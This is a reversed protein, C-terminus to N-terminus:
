GGFNYRLRAGYQRPMGVQRSEFGLANYTGSHYTAYEEDFANTVYLSLDFASGYIGIWSANLNTLEFSPLKDYPQDSSSSRQPGTYVYTAGVTVSGIDGSLPLRYNLSSVISNEPSFPLEDGEKAIPTYTGASISAATPSAGAALVRDRIETFTPVNQEVLETDLYSYSLSFTLGEVFLEVTTDAEVGWIEAEGANVIMTTPGSIASVYGGQLQMDTLKNYFAAINFRGPMRGAFSSKMGVEYTDVTEHKHADLGADAALNVSGQRYGRIYKAYTMVRDVPRYNFELLGTPADDSVKPRQPNAFNNYETWNSSFPTYGYRTKLGYGEATDKTYRLGVTMGFTENFDYTGQAYVAKNEFETKYRQIMVGGFDVASPNACDFLFPNEQEITAPNCNLFSASNNGSFGDPSSKEYYLGAQWFLKSEFANGQLQIEEVWTEQSTVPVSSSPVSAGVMLERGTNGPESFQTGFIDSGNETHLHAYALINKLTLDEHIQWSTTNIVRREKIITIPTNITSVLDYFDDQGTAQQYLIQDRCGSVIQPFIAAQVSNPNCAFLASTYGKSESRVNNIITYNEVDDTIDWLLSLRVATYDSNGLKDAGIDTINDLHGDRENKDIGLRVKFTDTAAHNLVVQLRKAELNGLSGEVYGEDIETPKQPVLLVAGGTTNRGFLTGQPGKLVQVNQLDFFYGPGAGDGSTQSTQGRPAVVEAFYTAVSATTRLSQTFGRISFSTNENGFRTNTSLSPTYISLDSANTMNANAIEDQNFVAISIAVDQASEERRQASVIVEELFGVDGLEEMDDDQALAPVSLNALGFALAAASILLSHKIPYNM